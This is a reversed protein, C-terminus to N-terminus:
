NIQNVALSKAAKDFTKLSNKAGGHEKSSVVFRVALQHEVPRSKMKKVVEM